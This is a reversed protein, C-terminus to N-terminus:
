RRRSSEHTDYRPRPWNVYFSRPFCGTMAKLFRLHQINCLKVSGYDDYLHVLYPITTYLQYSHFHYSEIRTGNEKYGTTLKVGQNTSATHNLKITFEM